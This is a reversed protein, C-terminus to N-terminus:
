LNGKEKELTLKELTLEGFRDVINTFGESIGNIYRFLTMFDDSMNYQRTKSNCTYTYFEILKAKELNLTEKEHYQYINVGYVWDERYVSQGRQGIYPPSTPPSNLNTTFFEAVCYVNKSFQLKSIIVNAPDLGLNVRLIKGTQIILNHLEVRKKPSDILNKFMKISIINDLVNVDTNNIITSTNITTSKSQGM